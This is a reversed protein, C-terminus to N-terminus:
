RQECRRPFSLASEATEVSEEISSDESVEDALSTGAPLKRVARLSSLLSICLITSPMSGVTLPQASFSGVGCSGALPLNFALVPSSTLGLLPVKFLRHCSQARVTQSTQTSTILCLPLTWSHFNWLARGASVPTYTSDKKWM